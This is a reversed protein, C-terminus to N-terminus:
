ITREMMIKLTERLSKRTEEQVVKVIITADQIFSHLEDETIGASRCMAAFMHLEEVNYGWFTATMEVTPANNIMDAIAERSDLKDRWVHEMLEDADIMRM